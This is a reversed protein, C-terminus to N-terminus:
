ANWFKEFCKTTLYGSVLFVITSILCRFTYPGNSTAVFLLYIFSGISLICFLFGLAFWGDSSIKHKRPKFIRFKRKFRGRFKCNCVQCRYEAWFTKCIDMDSDDIFEEDEVKVEFSGCEPCCVVFIDGRTPEEYMNGHVTVLNETNKWEKVDFEKM